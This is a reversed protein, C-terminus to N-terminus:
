HLQLTTIDNVWPKVRTTGWILPRRNPLEYENGGDVGLLATYESNPIAMGLHGYHEGIQNDGAIARCNAYVDAQGISQIWHRSPIM